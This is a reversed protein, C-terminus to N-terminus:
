RGRFLVMALHTHANVFGPAVLKGSGDIVDDEPRPVIETDSVAAIRTEEIQIDVPSSGGIPQVNKLVTGM